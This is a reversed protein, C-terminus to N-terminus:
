VRTPELLESRTTIYEFSPNHEDHEQRVLRILRAVSVKNHHFGVIEFESIFRPLITTNALSESTQVNRSM